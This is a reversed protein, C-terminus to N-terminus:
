TRKHFLRFLFFGSCVTLICGTGIIPLQLRAVDSDVYFWGGDNYIPSTSLFIGLGSSGCIFCLGLILVLLWCVLQINRSWKEREAEALRFSDKVARAAQAQPVEPVTSREGQMLELVSVDLVEALPELLKIDPFGAGREWKSVAKDTVDLKQALEAQTWHKERRLEAVFAGFKQNDM